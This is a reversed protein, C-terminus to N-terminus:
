DGKGINKRSHWRWGTHLMRAHVTCRAQPLNTCPTRVFRTRFEESWPGRVARLRERVATIAHRPVFLVGKANLAGAACLPARNRNRPSSPGVFDPGVVAVPQTQDIHVQM